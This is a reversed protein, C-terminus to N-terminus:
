SFHIVPLIGTGGGLFFHHCLSGAQPALGSTPRLGSEAVCVVYNTNRFAARPPTQLLGGRRPPFFGGRLPPSSPCATRQASEAVSVVYSSAATQPGSMLRGEPAGDCSSERTAAAGSAGRREGRAARRRAAGGKAERKRCAPLGFYRLSDRRNGGSSQRPSRLPTNWDSPRRCGWLIRPFRPSERPYKSESGPEAAGPLGERRAQPGRGALRLGFDWDEYCKLRRFGSGGGVERRHPLPSVVIRGPGRGRGGEGGGAMRRAPSLPYPTRAASYNDIM